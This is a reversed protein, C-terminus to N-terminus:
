SKILEPLYSFVVNTCQEFIKKSVAPDVRKKKNKDAASDSERKAIKICCLLIQVILYIHNTNVRDIHRM